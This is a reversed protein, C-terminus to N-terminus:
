NNDGSGDAWRVAFGNPYRLDVALLDQDSRARLDNLANIFRRLREDTEHRGLELRVGDVLELRWSERADLTVSQLELGVEALRPGWERYHEGVEKARGDPGHLEPLGEPWTEAPPRFVINDASLLSDDNWQAVARHERITVQLTAPWIRRVKATSVWPLTELSQRIAAIDLGWFGQGLLPDLAVRLDAQRVHELRSDFRVSQLPFTDPASLYRYGYVGGAGIGGIGAVVVVVLGLKAFGAAFRRFRAPQPQRANPRAGRRPARM